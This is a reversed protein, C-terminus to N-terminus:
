QIDLCHQIYIEYSIDSRKRVNNGRWHVVEQKIKWQCSCNKCQCCSESAIGYTAATIKIPSHKCNKNHTRIKLAHTITMNQSKVLFSVFKNFM